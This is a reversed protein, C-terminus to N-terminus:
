TMLEEAMGTREDEDRQTGLGGGGPVILEEEGEDGNVFKRESVHEKAKSEGDGDQGAVWVRDGFGGAKKQGEEHLYVCVPNLCPNFRCKVRVHTFKCDERECAAGNRCLPMGTM